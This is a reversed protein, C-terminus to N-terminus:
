ESKGSDIKYFHRAVNCFVDDFSNSYKKVIYRTCIDLWNKYTGNLTLVPWDSGWMIRKAGFLEFYCDFYDVMKPINLAKTQTLLGSMKAYVNSYISLNHIHKSWVKFENNDIDPKAFHNIVMPIDPWKEIFNIVNSIHNSNILLDITLGLKSLHMIVDDNTYNNIWNHDSIDQLMPRVGKFFINKSFYELTKISNFSSLDVWGVVGKVIETHQALDLLYETENVTPSAQIIITASIRNSKLLPSLDQPLYNKYLVQNDSKLWPYTNLNIDWFHQHSDIIHKM